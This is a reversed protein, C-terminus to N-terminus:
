PTAFSTAAAAAWNITFTAAGFFFKVLDVGIQEREILPLSLHTIGDLCFRFGRERLFSRMFLFNGMDAFVDILQLEIIIKSRAGRNLAGDFALFEPSLLTSINLNLSFSERLADDDKALYAIMCRDLSRTLNQFLWPNAHIDTNPMLTERLAEISIYIEHYVPKPDHDRAVACIPQRRIMTSLDAQAIAAEIIALGTPDLPKEPEAAPQATAASTEDRTAEARARAATLRQALSVFDEYDSELDYWACFSQRDEEGHKLLPDESFLYRLHLIAHDMDAVSAGKCVVVMDHNSLKFLAADYNFLLSDFTSEAIRLHHGRRNYPRLLSLQVHVARRRRRHKRLRQAYDLLAAEQGMSDPDRHTTM